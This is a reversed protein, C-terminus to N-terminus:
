PPSLTERIALSARRAAQVPVRADTHFAALAEGELRRAVRGRPPTLVSVLQTLGVVGGKGWVQLCGSSGAICGGM